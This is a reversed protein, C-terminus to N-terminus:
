AACYIHERTTCYRTRRKVQNLNILSPLIVFPKCNFYFEFQQQFLIHLNYAILVMLKTKNTPSAFGISVYFVLM